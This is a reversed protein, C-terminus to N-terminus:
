YWVTIILNPDSRKAEVVGVTTNSFKVEVDPHKELWENIQEDLFTLGSDSLRAHFTRCRKAGAGTVNLKRTFQTDDRRTGLGSANDFTRIKKSPVVRAGSDGGEDSILPEPNINSEEPSM